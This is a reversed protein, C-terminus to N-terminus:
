ANLKSRLDDALVKFKLDGLAELLDGWSPNSSEGEGKLWRTFVERCALTPDGKHKGDITDTVSPEFELLDALERWKAAM